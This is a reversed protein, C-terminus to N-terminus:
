AFENAIHMADAVLLEPTHTDSAPPLSRVLPRLRTGFGGVLILAAHQNLLHRM